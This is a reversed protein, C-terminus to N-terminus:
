VVRVGVCTCRSFTTGQIMVSVGTCKRESPIVEGSAVRVRVKVILNLPLKVKALVAPDLFNHTSGTDILITMWQAGGIKGMVRITKLNQSGTLAHLSIESNGLNDNGAAVGSRGGGETSLNEICSDSEKEM